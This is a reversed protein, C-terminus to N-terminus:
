RMSLSRARQGYMRRQRELLSNLRKRTRSIQQQLASGRALQRVRGAAAQSRQAQATRRIMKNSFSREIMYEEFILQNIDM